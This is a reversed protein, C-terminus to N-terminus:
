GWKSPAQVWVPPLPSACPLFFGAPGKYNQSISIENIVGAADCVAADVTGALKPSPLLPVSSEKRM